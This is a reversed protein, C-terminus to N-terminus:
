VVKAANLAAQGQPTALLVRSCKALEPAYNPGKYEMGHLMALVWVSKYREDEHIVEIQTILNALAAELEAIRKAVTDWDGWVKALADNARALDAWLETIRKDKAADHAALIADPKGGCSPCRCSTM